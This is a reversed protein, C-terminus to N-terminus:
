SEIFAFVGLFKEIHCNKGSLQRKKPIVERISPLRNFNRSTLTRWAELSCGLNKLSLLILLEEQSLEISAERSPQISSIFPSTSSITLM